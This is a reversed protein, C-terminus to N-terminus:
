QQQLWERVLAVTVARQRALAFADLAALAATLTSLDRPLHALMWDLAEPTLPMGRAAAQATLAARKDDDTLPQLPYTLGWALRTRLDERLALAAPPADGAAIVRTAPALRIENILAFLRAQEVESLRHVDDVAYRHREPTFAPVTSAVSAVARLLHSRGCGPPGWLYVIQPGRDAAFAQVAALAEANRGVVFNGLTPQAPQLLDLPLQALPILEHAATSSARM